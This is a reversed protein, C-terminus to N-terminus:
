PAKVYDEFEWSAFRSVKLAVDSWTEGSCTEIFKTITQTIANLDYHLVILRHRGWVFEHRKCTTALRKPTCVTLYFLEAGATNSPGVTLGFVCEFDQYDDPRFLEPKLAPADTIEISKIKAQIM